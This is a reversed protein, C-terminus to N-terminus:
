KRYLQFTRDGSTITMVWFEEGTFVNYQKSIEYPLQMQGPQVDMDVSEEPMCSNYYRSRWSSEEFNLFEGDAIVNGTFHEASWTFCETNEHRVAITWTYNGSADVKLGFGTAPTAWPNDAGHFWQGTQRDYFNEDISYKGTAFSADDVWEGAIAVSQKQEPFKVSGEVTSTFNNSTHIDANFYSGEQLAIGWGSCKDLLSNTITLRSGASVGINSKLNLTPLASSGANSIMTYDMSNEHGSLFLIGRWANQTVTGSGEFLINAEATGNAFLSGDYAITILVDPSIKFVTGPAIELPSSITLNSTLRYAGNKLAHWSVLLGEDLVGGTEVGDFGNASFITESEVRSVNKPSCYIASRTNGTFEMASFESLYSMGGVYLGYGGSHRSIANSLKLVSGSIADGPVSINTRPSEPLESSGGYEVISYSLTNLPSNTAFMLGKWHGKEKLTGTFTVQSTATGEAILAGGPFVQLSKDREFEIVVGPRITLSARVHVDTTVIYDPRSPDSFIDELLIDENVDEDIFVTQTEEPDDTKTVVVHMEDADSLEGQTITLIITYVGAKDPTFRAITSAPADIIAISGSPKSRLSWNYTFAGQSSKSATGNLIVETDVLASQDPGAQAALKIVTTIEPDPEPDESCSVLFFMIMALAKATLRLTNSFPLNRLM